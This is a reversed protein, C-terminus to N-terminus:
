VSAPQDINQLHYKTCVDQLCVLSTSDNMSQGKQNDRGQVNYIPDGKVAAYGNASGRTKVFPARQDGGHTRDLKHPMSHIASNTHTCLSHAVDGKDGRVSRRRHENM